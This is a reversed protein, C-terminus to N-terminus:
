PSVHRSRLVDHALAGDRSASKGDAQQGHRNKGAASPSLGAQRRHFDALVRIAAAAAAPDVIQALGPHGDVHGFGLLQVFDPRPEAHRVIEGGAVRRLDAAIHDFAM